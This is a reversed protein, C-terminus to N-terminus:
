SAALRIDGLTLFVCDTACSAGAVGVCTPCRQTPYRRRPEPEWPGCLQAAPPRPLRRAAGGAAKLKGLKGARSKSSGTGEESPARSTRTGGAHGGGTPLDSGGNATRERGLEEVQQTLERRWEESVEFELCADDVVAFVAALPLACEALMMYRAGDAMAADPM